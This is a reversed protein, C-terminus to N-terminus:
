RVGILSGIDFGCRFGQNKKARSVEGCDHQALKARSIFLSFHLIGHDACGKQCSTM